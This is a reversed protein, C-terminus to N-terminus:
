WSYSRCAPPPCLCPGGIPILLPVLTEGDDAGVQLGQKASGRRRVLGKTVFKRARACTNASKQSGAVVLLTFVVVRPMGVAVASASASSLSLVAAAAVVVVVAVVSGLSLLM